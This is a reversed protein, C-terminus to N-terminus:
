PWWQGMKGIIYIYGIYIIFEAGTVLIGLFIWRVHNFERTEINGERRLFLLPYTILSILGMGTVILAHLSFIALLLSVLLSIILGFVGFTSVLWAAIVTVILYFPINRISEWFAKKTAEEATYFEGREQIQKLSLM